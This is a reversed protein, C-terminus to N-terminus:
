QDTYKIGVIIDLHVDNKFAYVSFKKVVSLLETYDQFSQVSLNELKVQIKVSKIIELKIAMITFKM